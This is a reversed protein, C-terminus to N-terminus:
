MGITSAHAFIEANTLARDFVVAEDLVGQLQNRTGYPSSRSGITLRPFEILNTSTGVLVGKFFLQTGNGNNRWALHMWVDQQIVLDDLTLM